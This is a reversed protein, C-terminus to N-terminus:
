KTLEEFCQNYLKDSRTDHYLQICDYVGKKVPDFPITSLIYNVLLVSALVVIIIISVIPVIFM